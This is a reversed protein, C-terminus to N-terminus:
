PGALGRDTIGACILCLAGAAALKFQWRKPKAKIKRNVFVAVQPIAGM